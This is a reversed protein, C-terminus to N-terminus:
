QILVEVQGNTVTVTIFVLSTVERKEIKAAKWTTKGVIKWLWKQDTDSMNGREHKYKSVDGHCDVYMKFVATHEGDEKLSEPLDSKILEDLKITLEAKQDVKAFPLQGCTTEEQSFSTFAVSLFLISLLKKM